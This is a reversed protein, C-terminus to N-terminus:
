LHDLMREFMRKLAKKVVKSVSDVEEETATRGFHDRLEERMISDLEEGYTSEVDSSDDNVSGGEGIEQELLGINEGLLGVRADPDSDMNVDFDDESVSNSSPSHPFVEGHVYRNQSAVFSGDAKINLIHGEVDCWSSCYLCWQAGQDRLEEYFKLQTKGSHLPRHDDFAGRRQLERFLAHDQRWDLTKPEGHAHLRPPLDAVENQLRSYLLVDKPIRKRRNEQIIFHRM